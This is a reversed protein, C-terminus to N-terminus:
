AIVKRHRSKFFGDDGEVLDLLNLWCPPVARAVEPSVQIEKEPRGTGHEGFVQDYFKRMIATKDKSKM